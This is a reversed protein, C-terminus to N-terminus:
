KSEMFPVRDGTEIAALANGDRSVPDSAVEIVDTVLDQRNVQRDSIRADSGQRKQKM